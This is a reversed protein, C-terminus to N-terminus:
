MKDTVKGSRWRLATVHHNSHINYMHSVWLHQSGCIDVCAKETIALGYSACVCEILEASLAGLLFDRFVEACMSLM